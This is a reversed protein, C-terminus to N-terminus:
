NTEHYEGKATEAASLQRYKSILNRIEVFAFVLATSTRKNWVAVEWAKTPPVTKRLVFVATSTYVVIRVTEISELPIPTEDISVALLGKKDFVLAIQKPNGGALVPKFPFVKVFVIRSISANSKIVLELGMMIPMHFFDQEDESFFRIATLDGAHWDEMGIVINRKM